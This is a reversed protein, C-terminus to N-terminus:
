KTEAEAARRQANQFVALTMFLAGLIALHAIATIGFALYSGIAISFVVSWMWALLQMMMHATSLPYNKLPSLRENMVSSWADSKIKTDM